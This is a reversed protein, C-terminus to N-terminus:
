KNEKKYDEYAAVVKIRRIYSLHPPMNKAIRFISRAVSAVWSTPATYIGKKYLYRSFNSLKRDEELEYYIEQLRNTLEVQHKAYIRYAKEFYPDISQIYKFKEKQQIRMVFIANRTLGLRIAIEGYKVGSPDDKYKGM